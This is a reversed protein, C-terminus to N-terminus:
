ISGLNSLANKKKILTSTRALKRGGRSIERVRFNVVMYIKLPGSTQSVVGRWPWSSKVSEHPKWFLIFFLMSNWLTMAFYLFLAMNRKKEDNFRKKIITIKKHRILKDFSTLSLFYKTISSWLTFYLFVRYSIEFEM